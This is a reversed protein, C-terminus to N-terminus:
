AYIISSTTTVFAAIGVTAVVVGGAVILKVLAVNPPFIVAVPNGIESLPTTQLVEFVFDNVPRAVLRYFEGYTLVNNNKQTQNFENSARDISFSDNSYVKYMCSFGYLIAAKSYGLEFAKQWAEDDFNEFKEFPPGGGNNILIDIRGFQVAVKNIFAEIQKGNSIDVQIAIINNGTIKKIERATKNLETEDRSGIIVIAGESSLATAVAKGLGKSAALVIAVKNTLKLDM